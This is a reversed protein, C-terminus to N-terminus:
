GGKFFSLLLLTTLDTVKSFQTADPRLDPTYNLCMKVDERFDVPVNVLVSASLTKLQFEFISLTM